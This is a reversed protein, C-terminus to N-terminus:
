NGEARQCIIVYSAARHAVRLRYDLSVKDKLFKPIILFESAVILIIFLILLIYSPHAVSGYSFSDTQFPRLTFLVSFCLIYIFIIIFPLAQLTDAFSERFLLSNKLSKVQLYEAQLNKGHYILFSILVLVFAILFSVIIFQLANKTIKNM